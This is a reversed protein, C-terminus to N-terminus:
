LSKPLAENLRTLAMKLRAILFKGIGVLKLRLEISEQSSPKLLADKLAAGQDPRDRGFARREAPKGGEARLMRGHEEPTPCVDSAGHVDELIGRLATRGEQKQDAR